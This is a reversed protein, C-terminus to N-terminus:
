LVTVKRQLLNSAADDGQEARDAGQDKQEDAEAGDQEAALLEGVAVGSMEIVGEVEADLLFPGGAAPGEPVGPLIGAHRQESHGHASDEIRSLDEVRDEGIGPGRAEVGDSVDDDGPGSHEGQGAGPALRGRGGAEGRHGIGEACRDQELVAVDDVQDARCPDGPAEEGQLPQEM